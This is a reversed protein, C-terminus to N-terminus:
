ARRVSFCYLAAEGELEFKVRVPGDTPVASRRGWSVRHRLSDGRVPDCDAFAYGPLAKGGADLVAVRLRGLVHANVELVGGELMLPRTLVAGRGELTSHALGFLRDLPVAAVGIAESFSPFLCEHDGDLASYYFRMEDGVIVPHSGLFISGCDFDGPLGLPLFLERPPVREWRRGDASFVLEVENSGRSRDYLDLLGFFLNGRQFVPMVMIEPPDGEDPGLVIGSHTWHRLDPSEILSRRRKWEGAFLQPRHYVMWLRRRGDYLLVNHDDSHSPEIPNWDPYTWETGNDSFAVSVGPKDLYVAIFRAPAGSGPPAIRVSIAQAYERGLRVLNNRRTGMWEMLGLEPKDWEYGDHSVAYCIGSIWPRHERFAENDMVQYWCKFLRDEPDYLVTGHIFPGYGEWPRDKVMIPNRPSKIAPHLVRRVRWLDELTSGELVFTPEGGRVVQLEPARPQTAHTRADLLSVGTAALLSRRTFALSL